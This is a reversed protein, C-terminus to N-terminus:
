KVAQQQHEQMVASLLKTITMSTETAAYEVIAGIQHAAIQIQIAIQRRGTASHRIKSNQTHANAMIAYEMATTLSVQATHIAISTSVHIQNAHAMTVDSNAVKM